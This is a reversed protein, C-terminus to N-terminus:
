LVESVIFPVGRLVNQPTAYVFGFGMPRAHPSVSVRLMYEHPSESQSPVPCGRQASHGRPASLFLLRFVCAVADILAGSKKRLSSVELAGHRVRFLSKVLFWFTCHIISSFIGAGWSLTHFFSIEQFFTSMGVIPQTLSGRRVSFM